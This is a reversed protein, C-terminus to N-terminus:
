ELVTEMAAILGALCDMGSSHGLAAMAKAAHVADQARGEYAAALWTSVPESALGAASCRILFASFSSTRAGARRAVDILMQVPPGDGDHELHFHLGGLCGGLWDDGSPTLGEGLGALDESAEALRSWSKARLASLVRDTARCGSDILYRGWADGAPSSAGLMGHFGGRFPQLRAWDRSAALAARIEMAPAKSSESRVPVYEEMGAFPIVGGDSFRVEQQTVLFGIGIKICRPYYPTLISFPHSPLGLTGLTIFADAAKLHAAKAFVATVQGYLAKGDEPRVSCGLIGHVM